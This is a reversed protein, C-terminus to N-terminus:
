GLRAFCPADLCFFCYFLSCLSRQRLSCIVCSTADDDDDNEPSSAFSFSEIELPSITECTYTLSYIVTFFTFSSVSTYALCLCEHSFCFFGCLLLAPLVFPSSLVRFHEHTQTYSLSLTHREACLSSSCPKIPVSSSGEEAVPRAEPLCGRTYPSAPYHKYWWLGLACGVVVQLITDEQM